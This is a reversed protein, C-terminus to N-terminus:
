LRAPLTHSMNKQLSRSRGMSRKICNLSTNPHTVYVLSIDRQALNPVFKIRKEMNVALPLARRLSVIRLEEKRRSSPGNSREVMRPEQNKGKKFLSAYVEPATLNGTPRSMHNEVLTKDERQAEM